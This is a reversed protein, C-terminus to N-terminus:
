IGYHVCGRLASTGGECHHEFTATFSTLSGNSTVLSEVQFRGTVTNCGRGDGSVDLGPHGSSEFPWREAGEYVQTSIPASLESTDFYLDWWLGQSEDSPTVSIHVESTSATASWKGQTITEVGSYVYDGADGKFFIVNGGALCPSDSGVGSPAVLTIEQSDAVVTNPASALALTIRMTGACWSSAATSCPTFYATAGSPTLTLTSPSITGAGARSTDLVVTATSPSGDAATGIISVPVTSYGDAGITTVGVRVIFGAAGGDPTPVCEGSVLRTGSGCTVSAGGDSAGGDSAGGDISDPLCQIGSPHTGVGCFMTTGADVPDPLCKGGTQHTGPGCVVTSGADGQDPLCQTGALHTGVGCGIGPGADAAVPICQGSVLATGPGCVVSSTGADGLMVVCQDGVLHTGPGCSTGGDTGALCVNGVKTTGPGCTTDVVCKGNELYTGTGCQDSSLGDSSCAVGWMIGLTAITWSASLTYRSPAGNAM